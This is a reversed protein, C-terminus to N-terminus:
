GETQVTAMYRLAKHYTQVDDEYFEASGTRYFGITNMLTDVQDAIAAFSGKTWVDVQFEIRSMLEEDDAFDSAFNTIEFFTIRPFEEANPAKVRYVRAGGLMGTLTEDGTLTSKITAGMDIM